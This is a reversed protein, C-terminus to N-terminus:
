EKKDDRNHPAVTDLGTETCPFVLIGGARFLEKGSIIIDIDYQTKKIQAKLKECDYKDTTKKLQDILTAIQKNLEEAKNLQKFIEPESKKLLELLQKAEESTTGQLLRYYRKIEEQKKTDSSLNSNSDKGNGCALLFSCVIFLVIIKFMIFM